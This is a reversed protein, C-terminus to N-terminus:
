MAIFYISYIGKVTFSTDTATIFTKAECYDLSFRNLKEEKHLLLIRDM